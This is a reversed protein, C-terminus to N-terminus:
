AKEDANDGFPFTAGGPVGAGVPEGVEAGSPPGDDGFEAWACVADYDSRTIENTHEVGWRMKLVDHLVTGKPDGAGAGNCYKTWMRKAQLESICGEIQKWTQKGIAAPQSATAPRSVANGAKRQPMTPAPKTPATAHTAVPANGNEVMEEIDQTFIDSAATVTLTADVLARKKAMKECTNYYDAPNDHEVRGMNQNEIQPDGDPFKAGCGGKRGYCLWGGGYEQKGKIITDKGCAPCKQEAKRFRYKTEMTSCSGVGNGMFQGGLTSLRVSARYERHGDAMDEIEISTEPVLRFTMIIKEAGPKLLTPKDGCGPIVGYHQDKQMVATMVQQILAVQNKVQAPSLWDRTQEAPIIEAREIKVVENAM